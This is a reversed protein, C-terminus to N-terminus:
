AREGKTEEKQTTTTALCTKFNRSEKKRDIKSMKRENKEEKGIGDKKRGNLIFLKKITKRRGM